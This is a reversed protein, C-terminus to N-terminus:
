KGIFKNHLLKTYSYNAKHLLSVKKNSLSLELNLAPNSDSVLQDYGILINDTKAKLTIKADKNLVLSSHLSSYVVNNIPAIESLQLTEIEPNVVAGSLSKNYATSGISSCIVLGNGRFTELFEDNVFVDSILSHFPSEIRIENVAYFVQKNAKAELLHFSDIKYNKSALDSLLDDIENEQYDFFFGLHGTCLGAFLVNDIEDIYQHVAKLFTGDGGIFIVAEPNHKVIKHGASLVKDEIKSIFKHDVKEEKFVLAFKM